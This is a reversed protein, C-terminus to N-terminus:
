RREGPRRALRVVRVQGTEPDRVAQMGNPLKPLPRFGAKMASTRTTVSVSVTVSAPASPHLSSSSKPSM